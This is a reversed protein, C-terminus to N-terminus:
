LCESRAGLRVREGSRQTRASNRQNSAAPTETRSTRSHRAPRPPVRPARVRGQTDMTEAGLATEASSHRTFHLASHPAMAVVAQRELNHIERNHIEPVRMLRAPTTPTARTSNRRAGELSANWKGSRERVEAKKRAREWSVVTRMVTVAPLM